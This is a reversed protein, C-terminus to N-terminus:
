GTPLDNVNVLGELSKIHYSLANKGKETIYYRSSNSEHEERLFGGEILTKITETLRIWSLNTGYMIRTPKHTGRHIVDLIEFSIELQSRRVM